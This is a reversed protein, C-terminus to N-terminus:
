GADEASRHAPGVQLPETDASRPHVSTRRGLAVVAVVLALLLGSGAVTPRAGILDALRATPM